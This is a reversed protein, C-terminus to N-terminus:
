SFHTCVVTNTVGSHPRSLSLDVMSIGSWVTDLSSDKLLILLNFWAKMRPIDNSAVRHALSCGLVVPVGLGFDVYRVSCVHSPFRVFGPEAWLFPQFKRNLAQTLCRKNMDHNIMNSAGLCGSNACNPRSYTQKNEAQEPRNVAKLLLVAM